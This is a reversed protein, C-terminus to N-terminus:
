TSNEFPLTGHVAVTMLIGSVRGGQKRYGVFMGAGGERVARM